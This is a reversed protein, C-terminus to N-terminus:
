GFRSFKCAPSGCRQLLSALRPSSAERRCSLTRTNHDHYITHDGETNAPLVTQTGPRRSVRWVHHLLVRVFRAKSYFPGFLTPDTSRSWAVFNISSTHCEVYRCTIGPQIVSGLILICSGIQLNTWPTTTTRDLPRAIQCGRCCLRFSLIVNLFKNLTFLATGHLLTSSSTPDQLIYARPAYHHPRIRHDLASRSHNAIRARPQCGLDM